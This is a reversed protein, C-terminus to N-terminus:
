MGALVPDNNPIKIGNCSEHTRRKNIEFTRMEELPKNLQDNNNNNNKTSLERSIKNANKVQLTHYKHEISNIHEQFKKKNLSIKTQFFLFCINFYKQNIKLRNKESKLKGSM